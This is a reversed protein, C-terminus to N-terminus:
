MSQNNCIKTRGVVERRPKTGSKKRLMSCAWTSIFTLMGGAHCWRPSCKSPLCLYVWATCFIRQEVSWALRSNFSLGRKLAKSAEKLEQCGDLTATPRTRKLPVFMFLCHTDKRQLHRCGLQLLSIAMNERTKSCNQNVQLTNCFVNSILAIPIALYDQSFFGAKLAMGYAEIAHEWEGLERSVLPLGSAVIWNLCHQLQSSSLWDVLIHFVVFLLWCWPRCAVGLNNLAEVYRSLQM